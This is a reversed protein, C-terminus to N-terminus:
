IRINHQTTYILEATESVEWARNGQKQNLKTKGRNNCLSEAKDFNEVVTAADQVDLVVNTTRCQHCNNEVNASFDFCNSTNFRGIKLYM